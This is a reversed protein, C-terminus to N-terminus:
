AAVQHPSHAVARRLKLCRSASLGGLVVFAGGSVWRVPGAAYVVAGNFVVFAMFGHIAWGVWKPRHLYAEPRLWWALADLCWVLTFFYSVFIGGGVGSVERTHAIANGHSWHYYHEFALAVHIAFALWGLSWLLRVTQVAQQNRRWADGSIRLIAAAAMFYFLLAVWITWAVQEAGISPSHAAAPLGIAAAM